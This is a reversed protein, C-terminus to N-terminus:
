IMLEPFINNPTNAPAAAPANNPTRSAGAFPESVLFFIVLFAVSMVSVMSHPISSSVIDSTKDITKLKVLEYSTKGYDVASQLLPEVLKAFDEM